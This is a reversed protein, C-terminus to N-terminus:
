GYLEDKSLTTTKTVVVYTSVACIAVGCFIVILMVELLLGLPFLEFIQAFSSKIFFMLVILVVISILASFLGQIASKVLFPRVIFARTAGVLQMTHITFRQSYISLRVTNAILVISVFLLLATLIGIAFSIRAISQELTEVLSQQCSVEDVLPHDALKAQVNALSDAVVYEPTLTVDVSIPVPSTAFVKLFDEGLMDVLEKTGEEVTVLHTSAVFDLKEVQQQYKIVQAQTTQAKFIVSVRVNEKFYNSVGRANVILMSAVGVLLLVLAISIVSSVYAGAIRKKIPNKKNQAM